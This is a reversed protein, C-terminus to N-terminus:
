HYIIIVDKRNDNQGISTNVIEIKDISRSKLVNKYLGEIKTKIETSSVSTIVEVKREAKKDIRSNRWSELITIISIALSFLAIGLANYEINIINYAKFLVIQFIIFGLVILILSIMSFWYFIGDKLTKLKNIM